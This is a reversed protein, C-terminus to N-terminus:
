PLPPLTGDPNLLPLDPHKDVRQATTCANIIELHTTPNTICDADAQNADPTGPPADAVAADAPQVIQMADPSDSGGGGCAALGLSLAALALGLFTKRMLTSM